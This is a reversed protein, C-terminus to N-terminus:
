NLPSGAAREPLRELNECTRIAQLVADVQAFTKEYEREGSPEIQVIVQFSPTMRMRKRNAEVLRTLKAPDVPAEPHFRIELQNAKSIASLIMMTRMQRRINMAVILNEVLTPIPGCRDRMEDRLDDLDQESEARALRRYLILRENEDPVYHDPIYAPIGLRLEPEFDPRVPEGRLEAIAQEMMETYLEFGVAAIEGHQERGLLNGAGRHELDAMALKFGGGSEADVLEKLAEIRRKADRTIIHEGPILLYAYAKQRSRGVRGRLQYLQALGFHDARNIVMTNANPIDLGSEIIATCVLLNIKNEIFDRMVNELQHENMQGHGIGIRAEPILARLHGALNAINEIRNHVFFVQGGRNLERLIVERVLGDEFHAVFTRIAQRDPPPTQIVSLDRIGLMAMHLTRPIPTATLTLVDVLKRMKKMKEKDAVGFRHEEDIILLGLKAFQVDKSLLRHTGVVIDVKGRGLDEIVAKNEKPTRFRSVMEVRVPYDKFRTRFSNWHQEALITTPVLIAVQRGDMLAIFAARMAVETKGFGADGCILRDMPKVRCMDRIVEDIAAQQDPTEEFEFREAFEEYDRGPHPFAHGEMVERAAYVDLLESAMALVQAKTRRKVKNWADSGLKDLKPQQNDTGGVYRQVLNIREVPVYMTDNAAYELNLFDGEIDAVKMHKLGRYQGIGHDLHVVHDGPRLEELNLLAAGRARPKTRRHVRPEGFIEEESYVYLGDSELVVGASIEGEVIAPRFDAKDILEPFTKCDANVGIDYAELHRRLRAAQNAGEVVMVAHAEAQQVAKLEVALPEFSIAHRQGTLEVASLKLAPASAVEIPPAWGERPAVATVLAGIEVATMKGLERELEEATLYISGPQPFFAPRALATSAEANISDTRRFAEAIVRGPDMFWGVADKPLYAFVSDLPARYVYPMMMEAGPFLLGTELTEALEAAEKRIMGIEAARLAVQDLVHPSKLANPAVYRTRIVTAEAIEGLSRQTAAEFHRISTVIDDELEFRVPHQYLPSFADVIGGRVSFDGPEECQPVRQYGMTSLTEVVIDLDLSEASAIRIISADFEDRPITRMMLAEASTVIIPNTLRRMAFLAALQSAQVDPPPSIAAFPKLEWGRLLHVRRAPLDADPSEGLFFAVEHALAEAESTLSTVAFIPRALRLAAERLMLANAAGRLGMIPFRRHAASKLRAELEGAAEKLSRQM